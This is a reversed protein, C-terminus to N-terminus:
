IRLSKDKDISLNRSEEFYQNPHNITITPPQLHVHEFYKTCAIQYHGNKVLSMIETLGDTSVGYENLKSKLVAPESHKFPCGHSEGPGVNGMIIKMCSYPSYDTMKGVKGFQHNFNYLHEKNFKEGDMVKTFEQRWFEIFQEYQLGIGKLYLGYILRANHKLHHNTRLVEHLHRMCLPYHKSSFQDIDAPNISNKNNGVVYEQGTYTQHLNCLDSLREDDLLPLKHNIQNLAESLKSRFKSQICVVLDATPIYAYGEKLFVKRSRILPLVDLFSVKYFDSTTVMVDTLGMTSETLQDKLGEKCEHSIPTYNLTNLKLFNQIASSSQAAFKIRFWDLERALFWRRLDESRCYALRLIYHSIHDARRAQIDLETHGCLGSMLRVYKKLNNKILDDKICKKWEDSFFKYGKLSSQEVIRLLQVRDVALEQFEALQIETRPIEEYLSVDHSYLESCTDIITKHARRRRANTDM